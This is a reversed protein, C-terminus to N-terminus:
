GSAAAPRVGLSAMLAAGLWLASLWWAQWIGFSLLAIVLGSGAYGFAAARQWAPWATAGALRWLALGLTASALLVGPIGLELRWQLPADHPHLPLAEAYPTIQVPPYLVAVPIHGTPIARSADMGWGLLPREAIRESSFRWIGLRHIGSEPVFPLAQQLRAIGPGGPAVLPLVLGLGLAPVTLAVALSRPARWGLGALVPAAALALMTTRSHYEMVTLAVALVLLVLAWRRREAWLLAGAPWLLLLLVSAGRDYRAIWSFLITNARAFHRAIIGDTHLEIQLVAVALAIGALLLYGTRRREGAGLSQAAGLVVLGAASVALFRLAEVLSHAPIPSWLASLAAWAALLALLTGLAADDRLSALARRPEALVLVVALVALLAAIGLTGLVALPPLLLAAVGLALGPVPPTLPPAAALPTASAPM